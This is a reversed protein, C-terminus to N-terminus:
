KDNNENKYASDNVEDKYLKWFSGFRMSYNDSYEQLNYIPMFIDLYEANDVFTNGIKSICSGCSGNNKFVLKKNRKNANKTGTASIIGELLLVGM